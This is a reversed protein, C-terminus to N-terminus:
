LVIHTGSRSELHRSFSVSTIPIPRGLERDGPAQFVQVDPRINVLDVHRSQQQVTLEVLCAIGAELWIEVADPFAFPVPERSQTMHAVHLIDFLVDPDNM